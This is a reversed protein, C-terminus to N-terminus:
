LHARRIASRALQAYVAEMLAPAPSESPAIGEITRAAHEARQKINEPLTQPFAETVFTDAPPIPFGNERATELWSAIADQVNELAEIETEGDSACGPLDPVLAIWGGGDVESLSRILVSYRPKTEM